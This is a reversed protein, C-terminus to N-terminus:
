HSSRLWWKVKEEKEEEEYEDAREDQGEEYEEVEEGKEEGDAEREGGVVEDEKNRDRPVLFGFPRGPVCGTEFMKKDERALELDWRQQAKKAREEQEKQEEIQDETPPRKRKGRETAVLRGVVPAVGLETLDHVIDQDRCETGLYPALKDITSKQSYKMIDTVDYVVRNVCTWVRKYEDIESASWGVPGGFSGRVNTDRDRQLNYHSALEDAPVDAMAYRDLHAVAIHPQDMLLQICPDILKREEYQQTIDQGYYMGLGNHLKHYLDKTSDPENLISINYVYDNLAIENWRLPQRASREPVLYGIRYREMDDLYERWKEPHGSTFAVTADQGAADMILKSGGPHIDVYDSLDYVVNHIVAYLGTPRFIHTKIQRVTYVEQRRMNPFKNAHPEKVTAVRYPGLRRQLWDFHIDAPYMSAVKGLNGLPSSLVLKRQTTTLFPFNTLDFVDLGLYVWLPRGDEGNRETIEPLDRAMILKGRYHERRNKKIFAMIRPNHLVMGNKTKRVDKEISGKKRTAYISSVDYVNFGDRLDEVLVWVDDPVSSHNGVEGVTWHKAPHPPHFGRLVAAGQMIADPDDMKVDQPAAKSAELDMADPDVKSGAGGCGGGAPPPPPPPPQYAASKPDPLVGWKILLREGAGHRQFTPSRAPPSPWTRGITEPDKRQFNPPVPALTGARGTAPDLVALYELSTWLPWTFNWTLWGRYQVNGKAQYDRIQADLSQGLSLVAQLLMSPLPEVLRYQNICNYADTLLRLRADCPTIFVLQEGPALKVIGPFGSEWVKEPDNPAYIQAPEVLRVGAATAQHTLTYLTANDRIERKGAPIVHRTGYPDYPVTARMMRALAMWIFVGGQDQEGAQDVWIELNRVMSSADKLNGQQVAFGFVAVSTRLRENAYPTNQWVWPRLHKYIEARDILNQIPKKLLGTDAAPNIRLSLHRSGKGRKYVVDSTIVKDVKLRERGYKAIWNGWFDQSVAAAALVSPVSVSRYTHIRPINIHLDLTWKESDFEACLPFPVQFLGLSRLGSTTPGLWDKLAGSGLPFVRTIGGLLYSELSNGLESVFEQEMFPEGNLTDFDGVIRAQFFAHALEHFISIGYVYLLSVREVAGDPTKDHFSGDLRILTMLGLTGVNIHSFQPDIGAPSTGAFWNRFEESNLIFPDNPNDQDLLSWMINKALELTRLRVEEVEEATLPVDEPGLFRFRWAKGRDDDLDEKFADYGLGLQVGSEHPELPHRPSLVLAQWWRTTLAHTLLRNAIEIIVDFHESVIPNNISWIGLDPNGLVHVNYDFWHHPQFVEHWTSKDVTFIPCQAAVDEVGSNLSALQWSKHGWQVKEQFRETLFINDLDQETPKPLPGLSRFHQLDIGLGIPRKIEPFLPAIGSHGRSQFDPHLWGGYSEKWPSQAGTPEPPVSHGILGYEAGNAVNPYFRFAM